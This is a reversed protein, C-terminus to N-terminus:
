SACALTPLIKTHHCPLEVSRPRCPTACRHLLGLAQHPTVSAKTSPVVFPQAAPASSAPSGDPAATLTGALEAIVPDAEELLKQAEPSRSSLTDRVVVMDRMQQMYSNMVKVRDQLM